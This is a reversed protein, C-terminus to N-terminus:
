AEGEELSRLSDISAQAELVDPIKGVKERLQALHSQASELDDDDLNRYIKRLQQSVNLNQSLGDMLEEIV